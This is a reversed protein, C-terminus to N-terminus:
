GTRDRKLGARKEVENKRSRLAERYLEVYQHAMHDASYRELARARGAAGLSRARERDGILEALRQRMAEDDGVPVVFGSVGEEIVNHIGGAATTVIPLATAMAELIALPLGETLSPLAFVDLAAM